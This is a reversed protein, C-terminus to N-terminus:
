EVVVCCRAVPWRLGRPPVRLRAGGRSFSYLFCGAYVEHLAELSSGCSHMFMFMFMFMLMLMLM